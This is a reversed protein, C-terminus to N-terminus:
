LVPEFCHVLGAGRIVAFFAAAVGVNAGVDFVVDGETVTVGHRLYTEDGAIEAIQFMLQSPDSHRLMELLTRVRDARDPGARAGSPPLSMTTVTGGRRM